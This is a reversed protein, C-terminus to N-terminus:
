RRWVTVRWNDIGHVVSEGSAGYSRRLYGFRLAAGAASFDPCAEGVECPPGDFLFFDQEGLSRLNGRTWGTRVCQGLADNSFYRRGRQEIFAVSEVFGFESADLQICDEAYDLVRIAGQVGPDYHAALWLNSVHATGSGAPVQVSMRRFAGPNGDTPIQEEAHAFSPYSTVIASAAQWHSPQFQDDGFVLGPTVSVALHATAQLAVSGAPKALAMLVTGDDALNVSALAYTSSTAGPIDVFTAGGDASRRWQFSYSGTGNAVTAKFSVPSGVLVTVSPPEISLSPPPPPQPGCSDPYVDCVSGLGGGGSGVIAALGFGGIVFQLLTNALRRGIRPPHEPVM